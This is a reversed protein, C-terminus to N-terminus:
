PLDGVGAPPVSGALRDGVLQHGLVAHQGEALGTVARHLSCLEGSLVQPDGRVIGILPEGGALVGVLVWAPIAQGGPGRGVARQLVGVQHEPVGEGSVMHHARLVPRHHRDGPDPELEPGVTEEVAVGGEVHRGRLMTVRASYGPGTLISTRGAVVARNPSTAVMSPGLFGSDETHQHRLWRSSQFVLRASVPRARPSYTLSSHPRSTAGPM